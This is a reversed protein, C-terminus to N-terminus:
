AASPYAKESRLLDRAYAFALRLTTTPLGPYNACSIWGNAMLGMIFGVSLRDWPHSRGRM